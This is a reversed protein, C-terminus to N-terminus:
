FPSEDSDDMFYPSPGFMLPYVDNPANCESNDIVSFHDGNENVYTYGFPTVELITMIFSHFSFHVRSLLGPM